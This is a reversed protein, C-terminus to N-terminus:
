LPYIGLKALLRWCKPIPLIIKVTDSGQFPTGDNLKGTVTLTITMFREEYLRSLDVNAMVYNIVQQGDFKVMLDPISDNDYDGIVSKIPKSIWFPDVPITGNLLITTRNIDAVNYGEPLEIYATIWRGKSRLNFINPAVDITASIKSPISTKYLVETHTDTMRQWMLYARNEYSILHAWGDKAPNYTVRVDSSWEAGNFMKYYVEWNGDRDSAYLLFLTDNFVGLGTTAMAWQTAVPVDASWSNGDYVKVYVYAGSYWAVYLKDRFVASSPHLGDALRYPSSWESGDFTMYYIGFPGGMDSTWFLWLKGHYSTISSHDDVGPNTTLRQPSTWSIGDFSMIYIDWAYQGDRMSHWSMYLRNNFVAADPHVDPFEDFTIRVMNSWSSGDYTMYFLESKDDSGVVFLKNHFVELDGLGANEYLKVEESWFEEESKVLQINLTWTLMGILLFTLMLGSVTKKLLRIRRRELL